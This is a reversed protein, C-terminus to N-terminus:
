RGGGISAIKTSSKIGFKPARKRIAEAVYSPALHSYHKEVMRTDSHGLNKAVVILELGNMVAHSAWTHRLGHFNIPPNIKARANTDAMRRLQHSQAWPSGDNKLFIFESGSRGACQARFFKIGEETLVIHRGKNGKSHQVSVTGSDSNFDSVRLRCLEGYRAGTLLAGQVLARFDGDAANIIRTAEAIQLYRIRAADVGAFPEVRRWAADSVVKGDRWAMNLAAKFITLTRNASSKRRRISESDTGQKKYQQPEGRRTRLRPPLKVLSAHWRRLEDTMLKAVEKAGFEREIHAHYRARSDPESKRNSELFILYHEMAQAVTLKGIKGAAINARHVMLERVKHQAQRFDLIALGDADSFDDATAITETEYQQGGIYHRVVWRGAGNELRRYGLHLGPEIQRYYPKKCPKLRSRATRTDLNKDIVSRAM